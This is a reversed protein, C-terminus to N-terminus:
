FWAHPVKEYQHKPKKLILLSNLIQGDKMEPLDVFQVDFGAHYCATLYECKRFFHDDRDKERISVIGQVLKMRQEKEYYLSNPTTDPMYPEQAILFGGPKLCSYISRMTKALNGSHHLVGLAIVYDFYNDKRIDNFSGLVLEYREEEIKNNIFNNRILKDVAPLNCEMSYVKNVFESSALIVSMSGDGAGIELINGSINSNIMNEAKKIQKLRRENLFYEKNEFKHSHIVEHIQVEGKKLFPDESPAWNIIEKMKKDKSLARLM